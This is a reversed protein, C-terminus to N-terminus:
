VELRQQALAMVMPINEIVPHMKDNLILAGHIVHYAAIEEDTTTKADDCYTDNNGAFFVVEAHEFNLTCVRTWDQPKTKVGTEEKFERLMAQMDTEDKDIQGGPGNLHGWQWDPRIKKIMVLKTFDYNFMLGVVYRKM